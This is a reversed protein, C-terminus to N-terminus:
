IIKMTRVRERIDIIIMLSMTRLSKALISNNAARERKSGRKCNPLNTRECKKEEIKLKQSTPEKM